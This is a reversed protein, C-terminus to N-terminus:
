VVEVCSLVTLFFHGTQLFLSWPGELTSFKVIQAFKLCGRLGGEGWQPLGSHLRLLCVQSAGRLCPFSSLGLKPHPAHCAGGPQQGHVTYAQQTTGSRVPCMIIVMVVKRGVQKVMEEDEKDEKVLVDGVEKGFM